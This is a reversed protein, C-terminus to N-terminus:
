ESRSHNAAIPRHRLVRATRHVTRPRNAAFVTAEAARRGAGMESLTRASMRGDRLRAFLTPARGSNEVRGARHPRWTPTPLDAVCAAWLGPAFTIWEPSCPACLDRPTKSPPARPFAGM